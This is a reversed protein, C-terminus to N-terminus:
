FRHHILATVTIYDNGGERKQWEVNGEAGWRTVPFFRAGAGFTNSSINGIQDATGMTYGETGRSYYVWIRDDDTRFHTLKVTWTGDNSSKGSEFETRTFIYRAFLANRGRFYWELAAVGNWADAVSYHAFKAGAYGVLRRALPWALETEISGRSFVEAGPSMGGEIRLSQGRKWRRTIGITGRAEDRGFRHLYDARGLFEWGAIHRDRIATHVQSGPNARRIRLYAGGFEVEMRTVRAAHAAIEALGRRAGENGPDLSLAHSFHRKATEPRGRWFAVRGRRVWVEPDDPRERALDSLILDSERYRKQWALVDALGLRAEVDGPRVSLIERYEREGSGFDGSFALARALWIRADRNGPDKALLERLTTVAAAYEGSRVQEVGAALEARTGAVAPSPFLLFLVFLSGCLGLRNVTM